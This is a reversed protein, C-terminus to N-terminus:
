FRLRLSTQIKRPQSAANPLGFQPTGVLTNISTYTVRNLMNTADVRWELSRRDGWAFARSFSM